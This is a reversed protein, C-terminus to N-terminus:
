WTKSYKHKETGRETQKEKYERGRRERDRVGGRERLETRM